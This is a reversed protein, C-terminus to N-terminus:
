PSGAPSLAKLLTVRLLEPDIGKLVFHEGGIRGDSPVESRSVERESGTFFIIPIKSLRMHGRLEAAIDSGHRHPMVLDLLILDPQPDLAEVRRVALRPDRMIIVEFEGFDELFMKVQRLLGPDDDVIVIRKRKM